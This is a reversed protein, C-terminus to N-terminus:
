WFPCLPILCCPLFTRSASPRYLSFAPFIGSMALALGESWSAAFSDDGMGSCRLAFFSDVTFTASTISSGLKLGSKVEM